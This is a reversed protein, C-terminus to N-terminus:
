ATARAAGYGTFGLQCHFVEDAIDLPWLTSRCM